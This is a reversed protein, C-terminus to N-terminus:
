QNVAYTISYRMDVFEASRGGIFHFAHPSGL